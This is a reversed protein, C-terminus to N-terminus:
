RSEEKGSICLRGVNLLANRFLDIAQSFHAHLVRRTSM